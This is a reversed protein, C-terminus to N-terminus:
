PGISQGHSSPTLESPSLTTLLRFCRQSITLYGVEHLFVVWEGDLFDIADAKFLKYTLEFVPWMSPSVTHLKFTLADVLDYMNDFLDAINM